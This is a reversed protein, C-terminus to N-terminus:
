TMRYLACGSNRQVKIDQKNKVIDGRKKV